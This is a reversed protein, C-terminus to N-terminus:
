FNFFVRIIEITIIAVFEIFRPLGDYMVEIM